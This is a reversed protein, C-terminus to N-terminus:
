RKILNQLTKEAHKLTRQISIRNTNRFDTKLVPIAQELLIRSENTKGSKNLLIGIKAIILSYDGEPFISYKNNALINKAKSYCHLSRAFDNNECYSEACNILNIVYSRKIIPNDTSVILRSLFKDAKTRYYSSKVPKNKSAYYAGLSVYADSFKAIVGKFGSDILLKEWISIAKLSYNVANNLEQIEGFVLALNIYTTAIQDQVGYDNYGGPISHLLDIATTLSHNADRYKGTYNMSLGKNIQISALKLTMDKNFPKPYDEFLKMCKNFANLSDSIRRSIHLNRGRALHFEIIASLVDPNEIHKQLEEVIKASKKIWYDADGTKGQQSLASIIMLLSNLLTLLSDQSPNNKNNKDAHRIAANHNVLCNKYDGFELYNKALKNYFRILLATSSINEPLNTNIFDLTKELTEIAGSIDGKERHISAKQNLAEVYDLQLTIDNNKELISDYLNIAAEMFELHFISCEEDEEPKEVSLKSLQIKSPESLNQATIIWQLPCFKTVNNEHDKNRHCLNKKRLIQIPPKEPLYKKKIIKEYIKVLEDAIQGMSDWRDAPNVKLCKRILDQIEPIIPPQPPHQLVVTFMDLLEEGFAGLFWKNTGTFMTLVTLGYSWIDTKFNLPEKKNQELSCYAPTFFGDSISSTNQTNGNDANQEGVLYKQARALGFDTIKIDRTSNILVNLPKIDQHVVRNAHAVEIGWAIRIAFDLADELRTLLSNSIWDALSGADMYENFIVLRDNITRYFFCETINPHSPMNIWTRLERFFLSQRRDKKLFSWNPVKVAYKTEIVIHEVLFVMSSGGSGLLKLVRYENLIITGPEWPVLDSTDYGQTEFMSETQQDTIEERNM